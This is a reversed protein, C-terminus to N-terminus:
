TDGTRHEVTWPLGLAAVPGRLAELTDNALARLPTLWLVRAPEAEKLGLARLLAPAPSPAAVTLVSGDDDDAATPPLPPTAEQTRKPIGRTPRPKKTSAAKMVTSPDPGDGWPVRPTGPNEAIWELLPGMWVAFTKGMGTPANVLGGRGDLYARWAERQFPFPERGLSMFWTEAPALSDDPPSAARPNEVSPKAPRAAIPM